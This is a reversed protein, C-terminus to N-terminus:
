TVGVGWVGEGQGKELGHLDLPLTFGCLLFPEALFLLIAQASPAMEKGLLRWELPVAM